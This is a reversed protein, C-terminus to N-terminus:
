CKSHTLCLLDKDEHPKSTLLLFVFCSTCVILTIINSSALCQSLPHPLSLLPLRVALPGPLLLLSTKSPHSVTANWCYYPVMQLSVESNCYNTKFKIFNSEQKRNFDNWIVAFALLNSINLFVRFGQKQKLINSVNQLWLPRFINWTSSPCHRAWAPHWGLSSDWSHGLFRDWGRSPHAYLGASGPAISMENM